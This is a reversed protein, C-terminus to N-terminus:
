YKSKAPRDLGIDSMQLAAASDGTQDFSDHYQLM